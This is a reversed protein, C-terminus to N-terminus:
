LIMAKPVYGRRAITEMTVALANAFALPLTVTEMVQATTLACRVNAPKVVSDKQVLASEQVEMAFAVDLVLRVM